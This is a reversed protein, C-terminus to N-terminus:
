LCFRTKFLNQRKFLNSLLVSVRFLTATHMVQKKSIFAFNPM